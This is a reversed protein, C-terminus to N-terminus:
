QNCHSEIEINLEILEHILTMTKEDVIQEIADQLNDAKRRLRDTKTSM